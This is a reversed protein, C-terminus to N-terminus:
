WAAFRHSRIRCHRLLWCTYSDSYCGKPPWVSAACCSCFHCGFSLWIEGLSNVGLDIRISFVCHFSSGLVVVNQFHQIVERRRHCESGGTHELPLVTSPKIKFWVLFNQLTKPAEYLHMIVNMPGGHVDKLSALQVGDSTGFFCGTLRPVGSWVHQRM